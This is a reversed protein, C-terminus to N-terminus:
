VNEQEREEEAYEKGEDMGMSDCACGYCMDGRWEGPGQAESQGCDSCPNLLKRPPFPDPGGLIYDHLKTMRQNHTM